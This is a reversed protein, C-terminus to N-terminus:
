EKRYTTLAIYDARIYPSNLKDVVERLADEVSDPHRAISGEINDDVMANAAVLKIYLGATRLHRDNAFRQKGAPTLAYDVIGYPTVVRNILRGTGAREQDYQWTVDMMFYIDEPSPM